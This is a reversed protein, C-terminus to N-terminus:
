KIFAKVLLAPKNNENILKYSGAAAPIVFTEAYNFRQKMGQATELLVSMGEVLMWVHCNRNTDVHIETKLTYRHVDYFHDSHTPLHTITCTSDDSLVYPKSILEEKVMDGKREFYVNKMGHEINLPRPCGDIDLRLWDYMKFTFIYPASSIELVLNDKGSAHITGNPILFFDHKKAPHKQVYRTVAIEKDNRESEQLAQHFASPNIGEQFGLYVASGHRCDLIYYTEDQTFPMGFEEKIYAPRPHCQVSLNGGDFTDLFDFRIPFDYHFREACDGLVAKHDHYMLFDFSVELRYGDSEFMLGNESTMLEFSWALNPAEENLGDMHEKMWTGGWVGPEFWPRVRFFNRSMMALGTRLDNGSMMLYSNPRQGDIIIDIAPLLTRKHENLVPWDVFFARKYMDRDNAVTDAGLNTIAGARMRFQLENKPLDVYALPANWGALAAGCGVLVNIDAETDPRIQRLKDAYFWDSLTADTIKGFISDSTGMFPAIVQAIEAAPKMAASVHFWRVKKGELAPAVSLDDVLKNWLVGEYGDIVVTQQQAIWAALTNSGEYIKGSGLPFAPYIDYHGQSTSVAKPPALFQTTKRLMKNKVVISKGAKIAAGIIPANDWLECTTIRSNDWGAERLKNKLTNLYLPAAKAINGGLVFVDPNFKVLWPFIFAALNCAFTEFISLATADYQTALAAIEKVGQITKNTKTKWQEVFWRTSFYDDAISKGFPINYLYGNEPVTNGTDQPHDDILFTSGFGTGMTIILSRSSNKAAGSFYEGLAFCTADNEFVIQADHNKLLQFLSQKLNLGFITDFKQVGAIKSIGNIYDFPGPMAVGIYKKQTHSNFLPLAAFLRECICLLDSISGQPNIKEVNRESIIKGSLIDVLACSIHSGGIDIGVLYHDSLINVNNKNVKRKVM